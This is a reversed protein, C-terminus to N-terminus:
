DWRGPETEDREEKARKAVLRLNGVSMLGGAKTEAAM